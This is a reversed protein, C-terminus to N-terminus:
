FFSESLLGRVCHVLCSLAEVAVDPRERSKRYIVDFLSTTAASSSAVNLVLSGAIELQLLKMLAGMGALLVGMDNERSSGICAYLLELISVSNVPCLKCAANIAAIKVPHGFKKQNSNGNMPLGGDVLHREIVRLADPNGVDVVEPLVEIALCRVDALYNDCLRIVLNQVEENGRCPFYTFSRFAERLESLYRCDYHRCDRIDLYTALEALVLELSAVFTLDLFTQSELDGFLSQLEESPHLIRDQMLLRQALTPVGVKACLQQQVTRVEEARGFNGVLLLEGSVARVTIEIVEEEDSSDM